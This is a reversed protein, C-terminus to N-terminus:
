EEAVVLPPAAVTAARIARRLKQVSEPHNLPKELVEVLRVLAPEPLPSRDKAVYLIRLEPRLM